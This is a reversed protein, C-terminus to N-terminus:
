LHHLLSTLSADETIRIRAGAVQAYTEGLQNKEISVPCIARAAESLTGYAHIPGPANPNSAMEVRLKVHALEERPKRLADTLLTIEKELADWREPQTADHKIEEKCQAEYLQKRRSDILDMEERTDAALFRRGEAEIEAKLAVCLASPQDIRRLALEAQRLAEAVRSHAAEAAILKQEPWLELWTKTKMPSYIKDTPADM